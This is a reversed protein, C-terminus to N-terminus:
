SICNKVNHHKHSFIGGASLFSMAGTLIGVGIGVGGSASLMLGQSIASIGTSTWKSWGSGDTPCPSMCDSITQQGNQWNWSNCIIAIASEDASAAGSGGVWYNSWGWMDAINGAPNKMFKDHLSKSKYSIYVADPFSKVRFGLWGALVPIRLAVGLKFGSPMDPSKNKNYMSVVDGYRLYVDVIIMIVSVVILGIIILLIVYYKHVIGKLYIENKATTEEFTGRVNESHVALMTENVLPDVHAIEDLQKQTLPTNNSNQQQTNGINEYKGDYYSM